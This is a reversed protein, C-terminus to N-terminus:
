ADKKPRGRKKAKKEEGAVEKLVATAEVVAAEVLKSGGMIFNFHDVIINAAYKVAELPSISGDTKIDLTVKDFNTQQGVRVDEVNLGVQVIPTFISDIAIQGLELDKRDKSEVTVYGRGNEVTLEMDIEAKKDTLTAIFQDKNLVEVDSTTKIDAGTVEKEGSAKLQVKVPGESHLKFKVTKLNLIIDVMDEKVGPLTSFEHNVGSVKVQTIAAGPLSSLLVRRLVNGVTTGFGPFLPEIIVQDHNTDINVSKITQPLPISQM